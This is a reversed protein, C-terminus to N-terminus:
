VSEEGRQPPRPAPPPICRPAAGSPSATGSGTSASASRFRSTCAPLRGWRTSASRGRARPSAGPPAAAPPPPQDRLPTTSSEVRLPCRYSIEATVSRQTSQDRRQSIEVLLTPPVMNALFGVRQNGCGRLIGANVANLADFVLFSAQRPPARSNASATSPTASPFTTPHLTTPHAISHTLSIRTDVAALLPHLQASSSSLPPQRPAPRSRSSPSPSTSWPRM